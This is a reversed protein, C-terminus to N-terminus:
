CVHHYYFHVVFTVRLLHNLASTKLFQTVLVDVTPGSLQVIFHLHTLQVGGVEISDTFILRICLELREIPIQNNYIM